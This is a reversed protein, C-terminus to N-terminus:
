NLTNQKYEMAAISKEFLSSAITEHEHQKVTIYGMKSYLDAIELHFLLPFTEYYEISKNYYLKAQDYNEKKSYVDGISLNIKALKNKKLEIFYNKEFLNKEEQTDIPVRTTRLLEIM